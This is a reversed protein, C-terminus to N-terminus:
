STRRYGSSMDLRDRLRKAEDPDLKFRDIMAGLHAKRGDDLKDYEKRARDIQELLADRTPTSTM